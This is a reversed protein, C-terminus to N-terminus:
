SQSSVTKARAEVLLYVLTAVLLPALYYIARYMLLAALLESKPLKDSLLTVFVAELVGLGAPVHMIVGAIAAALLVGLVASFAIKQELLMFMAGAMLLWNASSILLQCLAMRLSPLMLYHGRVTWTRRRAMACLLVYAIVVALLVFGIGQLAVTDVKWEPPLPIPWWWCVIGALLLYGLWNTMMSIVVVRTIVTNDLGLRSYLRYRFAVGGVLTGLNLNLAYSIFNVTIVQPTRLRHGTNHRGLLDFCSYLAFSAAAFAATGLLGEIPRGRMTTLVQDWEVERAQSVLLYAVVVFFLLKALRKAWPWWRQSTVGSGFHAPMQPSRNGSDPPASMSM